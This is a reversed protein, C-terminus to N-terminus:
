KGDDDLLLVDVVLRSWGRGAALMKGSVAPDDAAPTGGDAALRDPLTAVLVAVVRKAVNVAGFALDTRGNEVQEVVQGPAAAAAAVVEAVRALEAERAAEDLDPAGPATRHAVMTPEPPALLFMLVADAWAGPLVVGQFFAEAASARGAAVPDVVGGLGDEQSFAGVPTHPAFEASVPGVSVKTLWPAVALGALLLLAVVPVATLGPRACTETTTDKTTTADPAPTPPQVQAQTSPSATPAPGTTTEGTTATTCDQEVVSFAAGSAVLLVAAVILAARVWWPWAAARSRQAPADKEVM